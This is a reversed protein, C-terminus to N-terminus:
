DGLGRGGHGPGGGSPAGPLRRAALKRDYEMVAERASEMDKPKMPVCGDSQRGFYVDTMGSLSVDALKKGTGDTRESSLSIGRGDIFFHGWAPEGDRMFRASAYPRPVGDVLKERVQADRVVGPELSAESGAIAESIDAGYEEGDYSGLERTAAELRSLLASSMDKDAGGAQKLAFAACNLGGGAVDLLAESGDGYKSTRDLQELIDEYPRAMDGSGNKHYSEAVATLAGRMFGIEDGALRMKAQMIAM